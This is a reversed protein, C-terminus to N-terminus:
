PADTRAPRAARRAAPWYRLLPPLLPLSRRSAASLLQLAREQRPTWEFGYAKRIPAPLLGITPLRALALLPRAPWPLGRSVIEDALHRATGTVAIQDSAIIREMCDDLEAATRPLANPTMGLLPASVTAELCYRDREAPTLPAVFREYTLLFTDVLTVHVWALLAPDHASYGAGSAFEGAAEPLRGHVRDHIRNIGAAAAASEEATGFSLALMAEVTRKLRGVRAWREAAFGSHDAVGQAVLPHAIQLLIARGWGALLVVERHLRWTTSDSALSRNTIMAHMDLLKLTGPLCRTHWFDSM